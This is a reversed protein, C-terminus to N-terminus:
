SHNTIYHSLQGRNCQHINVKNTPRCDVGIEDVTLRGGSELNLPTKTDTSVMKTDAIIAATM